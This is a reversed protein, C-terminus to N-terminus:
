LQWIKLNSFEVETNQTHEKYTSTLLSLSGSSFNDDSASAIQQGNLYFTLSSGQAKVGIKNTGSQLPINQKDTLKSVDESLKADGQRLVQLYKDTGIYLLYGTKLITNGRFFLGGSDGTTIKM